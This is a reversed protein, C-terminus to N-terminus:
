AVVRQQSLISRAYALTGDKARVRRALRRVPDVLCYLRANGQPTDRIESFGEALSMEVMQAGTIVTGDDMQYRVAQAAERADSTERELSRAKRREAAAREWELQESDSFGCLAFIARRRATPKLGTLKVHFCERIARKSSKNRDDPTDLLQLLLEMDRTAIATAVRNPWEFTEREYTLLAIQRGEDYARQSIKGESRDSELRSLQDDRRKDAILTRLTEAFPSVSRGIEVPKAYQEPLPLSDVIGHSYLL